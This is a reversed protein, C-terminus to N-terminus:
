EEKILKGQSLSLSFVRYADKYALAKEPSEFYPTIKKKYKEKFGAYGGIFYYRAM